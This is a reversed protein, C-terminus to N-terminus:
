SNLYNAAWILFEKRYKLPTTGTEEKFVRNFTRLCDFGSELSIDVISKDTNELLEKAYNIRLFRVYKVFNIKVSSNFLKSVAFRSIGLSEGVSDLSIPEKYHEFVHTVARVTLNAKFKKTNTKLNLLPITRAFILSVIAKILASKGDNENLGILENMLGGIDDPLDKAKIVPPSPHMEFLTKYFDASEEMRFIALSYDTTDSLSTYGHITGPFIVAIDGQELVFDTDHCNLKLKGENIYLFEPSLHMHLPFTFFINERRSQLITTRHEFFPNM